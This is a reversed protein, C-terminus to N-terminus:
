RRGIPESGLPSGGNRGVEADVDLAPIRGGRGTEGDDVAAREFGGKGLETEEKRDCRRVFQSRNIDVRIRCSELTCPQLDGFRFNRTNLSMCVTDLTVNGQQLRAEFFKRRFLGLVLEAVGNRM